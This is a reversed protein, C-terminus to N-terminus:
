WLGPTTRITGASSRGAPLSRVLRVESDTIRLGQRAVDIDYTVSHDDISEQRVGDPNALVRKVMQVVALRALGPSLKGAAIRDDIDTFTARLMESAYGLLAQATKKEPDTLRRWTDEVHYITAFDAM